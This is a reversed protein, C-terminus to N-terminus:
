PARADSPAKSAGGSIQSFLRKLGARESLHGWSWGSKKTPQLGALYDAHRRELGRVMSTLQQDSYRSLNMFLQQTMHGSVREMFADVDGIKGQRMLDDYLGTGPFPLPFQFYAPIALRRLWEENTQLSQEDDGPFGYLMALVSPAMDYRRLQELAGVLTGSDFGKRMELLIRDDFSEVGISVEYFQAARFAELIEDDLRDARAGGVWFFCDPLEEEARQCFEMVWKKNTNFTEDYFAINNAGYTQKVYKIHNIVYDVSHRSTQRGYNRYCFTCEFPCGRETFMIFYNSISSLPIGMREATRILAPRKGTNATYLRMDVLDYAPLPLWDLERIRRRNATRRIEGDATKFAIGAIDDLPADNLLAAILPTITEEGEGIGVVDLATNRLVEEPCPTAFSGGGILKVGPHHERIFAALQKIKSYVTTMGSFAVVPPNHRRFFAETQEDDWRLANLDLIDVSVGAQRLIAALYMCGFPPDTPQFEMMVPPYVLLVDPRKEMDPARM